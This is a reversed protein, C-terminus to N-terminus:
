LLGAFKMALKWYKVTNPSNERSFHLCEEREDGTAFNTQYGTSLWVHVNGDNPSQSPQRFESMLEVLERFTVSENESLFGSDSFDGHEASEESIETFTKNVLIFNNMKM